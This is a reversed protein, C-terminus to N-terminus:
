ANNHNRACYLVCCLAACQWPSTRSSRSLAALIRGRQNLAGCQQGAIAPRQVQGGAVSGATTWPGCEQLARKIHTTKGPRQQSATGKCGLFDGEKERAESAEESCRGAPGTGADLSVLIDWASNSQLTKCGRLM